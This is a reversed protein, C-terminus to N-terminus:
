KALSEKVEKEERKLPAAGERVRREQVNIVWVRV